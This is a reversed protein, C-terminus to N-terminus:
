GLLPRSEGSDGAGNSKKKKGRKKRRKKSNSKREESQGETQGTSIQVQVGNAPGDHSKDESDSSSTTELVIKKVGNVDVVSESISGSRATNRNKPPSRSRSHISHLSGLTSVSGRRAPRSRHEDLLATSEDAENSKSSKADEEEDAGAKPKASQPSVNEANRYEMTGYGVALSHVGDSAERGANEVLGEGVGGSYAPSGVVVGDKPATVDEPNIGPKIKVTNIRTSKPQKAANSPGLHKLHQKVDDDLPVSGHRDIHGSSRRRLLLPPLKGSM